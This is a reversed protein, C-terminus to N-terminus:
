HKGVLEEQEREPEGGTYSKPLPPLASRNSARVLRRWRRARILALAGVGVPIALILGLLALAPVIGIAGLRAKGGASRAGSPPPAFDAPGIEHLGKRDPRQMIAIVYLRNVLWRRGQKVVEGSFTYSSYSSRHLPHLLLDFIVYRPGVDVTQWDHFTKERPVYYPVPSDGKRWEALTSAAKLEPGALSWAVAPARRAMGAPVFVDLTADIARRDAATLRTHTESALQAPGENGTPEANPPGHSPILLFV